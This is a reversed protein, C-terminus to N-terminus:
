DPPSSLGGSAPTDPTALSAADLYIVGDAIRLPFTALTPKDHSLGCGTKLDFVRDHLPCVVTADGLLGDALPGGRHPCFPQTAYFAGANTQFVAVTRGRVDFMRGEGSPVDAVAGIRLDDSM